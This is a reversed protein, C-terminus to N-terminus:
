GEAMLRRRKSKYVEFHKPKKPQKAPQSDLRRARMLVAGGKQEMLSALQADRAVSISLMAAVQFEVAM